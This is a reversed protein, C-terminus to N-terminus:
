LRKLLALQGTHYILHHIAGHLSVYLSHEIGAQSVVLRDLDADSLRSIEDLLKQHIAEAMALVNRWALESTDTFSPWDEADSVKVVDGIVRRRIAEEWTAIHLVIEWISHTNSGPKAAAQEATLEALAEHLSPGHWAEGAFARQLQDRIREIEKM